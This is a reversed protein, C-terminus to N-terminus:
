IPEVTIALIIPTTPTMTSAIAVTSVPMRPRPNEWTVRYIRLKSENPTTGIWAPEPSGIADDKATLWDRVEIGYQIPHEARLDDVHHVNITAIPQM